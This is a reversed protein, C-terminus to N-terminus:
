FSIFVLTKGIGPLEQMEYRGRVPTGSRQAGFFVDPVQGKFTLSMQKGGADQCRMVTLGSHMATAQDALIRLEM